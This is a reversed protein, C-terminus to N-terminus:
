KAWIAHRDDEVCGYGNGGTRTYDILISKIGKDYCPQCLHHIPGPHEETPEFRYCFHGPYIEHLRYSARETLKAAMASQEAQLQRLTADTANLKEALALAKLSLDTYKHSLDTIAQEILTQDRNTLGLRALDIAAKIGSLAPYIEIM